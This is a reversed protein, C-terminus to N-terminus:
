KPLLTFDGVSMVIEARILAGSEDYSFKHSRDRSDTIIYSHKGNESINFDEGYLESYVRSVGAPEKVFLLIYSYEVSVRADQKAKGNVIRIVGADSAGEVIDIRTRGNLESKVECSTMIHAPSYVVRWSDVTHLEGSLEVTYDSNYHLTMGEDSKEVTVVLDGVHAKEYMWTFGYEEGAHVKLASFIILALIAINRM